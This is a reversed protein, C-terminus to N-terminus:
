RWTGGRRVLGLAIVFAVASLMASSFFPGRNGFVDYILGALLPGIIRALSGISAQIGLMSGHDGPGSTRTTLSSLSPYCIGQGLAIFIAVFYLMRPNDVAPVLAFGLTLSAAGALVLRREGFRRSLAGIGGGQIAAVILGMFGFFYGLERATFGFRDRGYLTVTTEMGAFALIILFFTVFVTRLGPATAISRWVEPDFQPAIRPRTAVVVISRSEELSSLALLLATLSLAAAALGPLLNGPLHRTTGLHSLLGGVPPGLIFGLGFAAGILGMGRARNEPTTSDAIYAQATGINAAAIGAIMRAVFLAVLDRSFAFLTYGLVSGALSILLVPRRGIRDSLRGWMPSFIFQMLSYVGVVIGVTKGTAGYQRAFFALLPIVIGFGLLDIFITLFIVVLSRRRIPLLASSSM